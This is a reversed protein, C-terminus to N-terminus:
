LESLALFLVEGLGRLREEDSSLVDSLNEKDVEDDLVKVDVIGDCNKSRLSRLLTSIGINTM